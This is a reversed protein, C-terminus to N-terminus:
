KSGGMMTVEHEAEKVAKTVAKSTITAGTLAQINDKNTPDKVVVLKTEDKGFFQSRFPEKQANDGLGPTENHAMITYDIVKGDPTIAVLMKISGGYGKSEGPVVFAIVENNKKARYWSEMHEMENVKEFTDADKVLAKMAQNNLMIRKEAAIPATVFYVAAILIGAFLCALALNSAIEFISYHKENHPVNM